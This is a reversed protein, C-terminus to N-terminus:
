GRQASQNERERCAEIFDLFITDRAQTDQLMEPHWQYAWLWQSKDQLYYSEVIGDPSYAMPVLCPALERVAQHHLSNVSLEVRGYLQHLPTGEVVTVQHAGGKYEQYRSHQITTEHQTPLDQYLTGGFYVNAIQCGRCICLIPKHLKLAAKLLALDSQDRQPEPTGCVDLKEQGYLSPSVDAGGSLLLGQASAMLTQADADGLFPPIVPIGGAALIASTNYTCSYNYQGQFPEEMPKNQPTILILPKNM